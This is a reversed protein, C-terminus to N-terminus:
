IPWLNTLPARREWEEAECAADFRRLKEWNEEGIRAQFDRQKNEKDDWLRSGRAVLDQQIARLQQHESEVATWGAGFEVSFTRAESWVEELLLRAKKPDDFGRARYIDAALKAGM